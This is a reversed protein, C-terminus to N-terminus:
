RADGKSDTVSAIMATIEPTRDTIQDPPGVVQVDLGTDDVVFTTVSGASSPTTFTVQVGTLGTDTVFPTRAGSQAFVSDGTTAASVADIQTLLDDPTGDFSDARISFTINGRTLEIGPVSDDGGREDVRFGSVVNWDTAPRMSVSDTISLREGATVPNEQSVASDLAPVAIVWLLWVALIVLAHPFVRTDLGLFRHDAPPRRRHPHTSTTPADTHSVM